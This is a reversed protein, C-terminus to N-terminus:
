SPFDPLEVAPVVRAPGPEDGAPPEVDAIEEPSEEAAPAPEEGNEALPDRPDDGAEVEAQEQQNAQQNPEPFFGWFRGLFLWGFM